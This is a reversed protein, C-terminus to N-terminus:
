GKEQEVMKDKQVSFLLQKETNGARCLLILAAFVPWLGMQLVAAAWCALLMLIGCVAFSVRSLVRYAREPAARLLLAALIRGGDMPYLPLLNVAALGLSLMGAEPVVRLLVVGLLLSAGPGAAACIAEQGYAMLGTRIVAGTLSLRLGLVPIGCLRLAALHGMEHAAICILLWLTLQGNLWGLACVAACFGFTIELRRSVFYRM